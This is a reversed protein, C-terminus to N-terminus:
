GGLDGDCMDLKGPRGDSAAMTVEFRSARFGLVMLPLVGVVGPLEFGLLNFFAGLGDAWWAGYEVVGLRRLPLPALTVTDAPAPCSAESPNRLRGEGM